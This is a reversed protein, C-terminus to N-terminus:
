IFIIFFYIKMERWVPPHEEQPHVCRKEEGEAYL